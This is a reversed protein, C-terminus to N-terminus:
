HKQWKEAYVRVQRCRQRLFLRRTGGFYTAFYTNTAILQVKEIQEQLAFVANLFTDNFVPGYEKNNWNVQLLCAGVYTLNNAFENTHKILCWPM